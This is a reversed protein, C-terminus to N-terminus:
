KTLIKNLLIGVFKLPLQAYREQQKRREALWFLPEAGSKGANEGGTGTQAARAAADETKM